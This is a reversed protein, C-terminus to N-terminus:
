SWLNVPLWDDGAPVLEGSMGPQPPPPGYSEAVRVESWGRMPRPAAFRLAGVPAEAFRIGRFVAQGAEWSGRLVGGATRIEPGSASQSSAPAAVTVVAAGRSIPGPPPGVGRIM